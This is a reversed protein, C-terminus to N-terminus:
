TQRGRLAEEAAERYAHRVANSAGVAARDPEAAIELAPAWDTAIEAMPSSTLAAAAQVAAGAAATETTPSVLVTRGTLDALVQRYSRSRAAGGTLILRGNSEVGCRALIEGGELLGCLVGEIAARAFCARTTVTRLGHLSGRADPLNPSREGDLYPVLVLGNAGPPASLALNDFEKVSVDLLRRFADTVKAANLTTVMPLFAGTADAYGNIAGSLDYVGVKSLGYITGSTGLSIVTDGERVSIGLAACTNDGSGAGVVAGALGGLDADDRVRGAQADSPILTPLKTAWDVGPVALDALDLDWQNSFPNFYGTGSSGGRETVARGSLRYVLYDSPLMVRRAGAILGPHNRETWALKSVTLAPAPASGTRRVWENAPLLTLLRKADPASETDNWLKAPRVPQDKDDLLVLGHGQGGVSIAAIRSLHGRLEILCAQLASWWAQPNQESVPPTTPPHPARAEAIAAGDELRRLVVTCSQTSTDIGAVLDRAM